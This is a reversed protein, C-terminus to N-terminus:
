DDIYTRNWYTYFGAPGPYGDWLCCDEPIQTDGGSRLWSVLKPDLGRREIEDLAASYLEEVIKPHLDAVDDLSGLRTLKAQESKATVELCWEQDFCTFLPPALDETEPRWNQPTSGALAVQREGATGNRALDLLDHSVVGAPM